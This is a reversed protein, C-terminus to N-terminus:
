TEIESQLRLRLPEIVLERLVIAIVVAVFVAVWWIAATIPLWGDASKPFLASHFVLRLAVEGAPASVQYATVAMIVLVPMSLTGTLFAGLESRRGPGTLSAYGLLGVIFTTAAVLWHPPEPFAMATAGSLLLLGPVTFATIWGDKAEKSSQGARM